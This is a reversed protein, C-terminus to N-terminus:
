KARRWVTKSILGSGTSPNTLTLEDGMLTYTRPSDTGVQNPFVSGVYRQTVTKKADDFTCTGFNATTGRIAAANETPTGGLRSNVAFKPTDSSSIIQVCQGSADFVLIGKPNSGFVAQPKGDKDTQVISSLTWAGIVPSKQQASVFAPNFIMGALAAALVYRLM